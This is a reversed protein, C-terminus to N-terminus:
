QESRPRPHRGPRVRHDPQPTRRRRGRGGPGADLRTHDSGRRARAGLRAGAHHRGAGHRPALTIGAAVVIPLSLDVTALAAAAVIGLVTGGQATQGARVFATGVRDPGIEDAAWAELAGDVCVAGVAWIANVVLLGAYNPLPGWALLGVGMLLHGVVVFLRRSYLDAIIGTPVQAAFCVVEMLTGVLIPQWPGLGVVQSQYVLNLTFATNRPSPASV